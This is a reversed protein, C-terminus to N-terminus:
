LSARRLSARPRLREGGELRLPPEALPEPAVLMPEGRLELRKMRHVDGAQRRDDAGGEREGAGAAADGVREVLEVLEHEAAEVGRRGVLDQDLFRHEAPLLELHLDDAVLVVVADDDARDLVDIRHADM